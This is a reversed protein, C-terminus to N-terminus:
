NQASAITGLTQMPVTKGQNNLTHANCNDTRRHQIGPSSVKIPWADMYYECAYKQTM